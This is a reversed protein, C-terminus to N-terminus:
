KLREKCHCRGRFRTEVALIVEWYRDTLWRGVFPTYFFNDFVATDRSTATQKHKTETKNFLNSQGIM